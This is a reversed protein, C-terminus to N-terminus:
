DLWIYHEVNLPLSVYVMVVLAFHVVPMCKNLCKVGMTQKNVHSHSKETYVMDLMSLLTNSQQFGWM